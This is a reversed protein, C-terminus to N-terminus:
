RFFQSTGFRWSLGTSLSLALGDSLQQRGPGIWHEIQLHLRLNKSGGAVGGGLSAFFMNPQSRQLDFQRSIRGPEGPVEQQSLNFVQTQGARLIGFFELGKINTSLQQELYYRAYNNSLEFYEPVKNPKYGFLLSVNYVEGRSYGLWTAGRYGSNGIPYFGGFGLQYASLRGYENTIRMEGDGGSLYGARLALRNSVAVEAMGQRTQQVLEMIAGQVQVDGAKELRSLMSIEPGAFYMPRECASGLVLLVLLCSKHIMKFEM